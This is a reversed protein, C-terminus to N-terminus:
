DTGPIVRIRGPDGGIMRGIVAAEDVGGARLEEVVEDVRDPGVCLLLGGSTQADALLTRQVAPISTHFDVDSRVDDLNRRTGGPVHGAEVLEAAGQLIPVASVDIEASVLSARALVRLHGLLGFGTVDTGGKIGHDIAVAAATANLTGMRRVAARVVADDAADKKIATTIVGIGLPKTLVLADGPRGGANTILRDPHAEGIAVLGYKPEPDDISHGGLIPIGAERAIEAGGRIIEEAVGEGLHASPFAFLNLSFLPTAGM